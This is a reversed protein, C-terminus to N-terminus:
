ILCKTRRLADLVDQLHSTAGKFDLCLGEQYNFMIKNLTEHLAVETSRYRLVSTAMKALRASLSLIFTLRSYIDYLIPIDKMAELVASAARTNFCVRM